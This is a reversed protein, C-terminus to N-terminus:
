DISVVKGQFTPGAGTLDVVYTSRIMAGFSNEADVPGTVRWGDATRTHTQLKCNDDPFKATSPAKLSNKVTQRAADCVAFDNSRQSVANSPASSPSGDERNQSILVIAVLAAMGLAVKVGTGMRPM